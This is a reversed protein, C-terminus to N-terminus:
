LLSLRLCHGRELWVPLCPTPSFPLAVQPTPPSWQLRFVFCLAGPYISFPFAELGSQEGGYDKTVPTKQSASAQVTSAKPRLEVRELYGSWEEETVRFSVSEEREKRPRDSQPRCHTRATLACCAEPLKISACLRTSSDLSLSKPLSERDARGIDSTPLELTCYFARTAATNLVVDSSCLNSL